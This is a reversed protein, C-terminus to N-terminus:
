VCPTPQQPTSHAGAKLKGGTLVEIQYARGQPVHDRWQSIAQPKCGLAQALKAAGGFHDIADQKKM